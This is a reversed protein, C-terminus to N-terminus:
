PHEAEVHTRERRVLYIGSAIIIGAGLLMSRDPIAQWLLWDIGMAWALATYEFPAVVSAEGQKFAETVAVQGLFGTVAMGAIVPWDSTRIALWDPAALAGAGVALMTMLWFVMSESSDTRALLRVTIASIAYCAASVLVAFSGLLSLGDGSPRLVVLVGALGIAIAWWRAADVKEKLLPVSLATILLPAIFFLSYTDALPLRKLAYAFTCLMGIGLVARLLHLPWRVRLLTGLKGRWLVWACVLPLSSMARMATVQMPPYHAALLKMATDMLAFCAVAALM